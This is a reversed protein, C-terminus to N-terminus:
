EISSVAPTVPPHLKTATCIGFNRKQQKMLIPFSFTCLLGM